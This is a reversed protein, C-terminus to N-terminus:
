RRVGAGLGLGHPLTGWPHEGDGPVACHVGAGRGAALAAVDTPAAYVLHCFRHAPHARTWEPPRGDALYTDWTGEFTVLVEALDLYAPDPHVGHNFVLTEAGAARAAVSLRRYHAHADRGSSVQDLFIGDTAYWDRYKLLEDVVQAHPRRAYDTDAYGLVRVGAGRLRDAVAVFAPDPSSGPGSAPNLIVGHLREPVRLVAEWADPRDAPHEYLPVLLQSM